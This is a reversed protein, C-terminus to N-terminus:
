PAQDEATSQLRGDSVGPSVLREGRLAAHVAPVLDDAATHKLVYGLAGVALSQQVLAPHSHVTVFVVRADSDRQLVERAAALGDLGPMAIDTVIVDPHLAAAAALLARGDGVTAVVDFEAELLGRLQEAVAAHDDALLVRVRSM